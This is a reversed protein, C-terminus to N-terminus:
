AIFIKYFYVLKEPSNPPTLTVTSTHVDESGVAADKSETFDQQVIPTQQKIGHFNIAQQPSAARPSENDHGTERNNNNNNKSKATGKVVDALRNEGWHNNQNQTDINNQHQFVDSNVLQQQRPTAQNSVDM